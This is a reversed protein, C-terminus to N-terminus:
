ECICGTFFRLFHYFNLLKKEIILFHFICVGVVELEDLHAPLHKLVIQNIFDKWLMGNIEEFNLDGTITTTENLEAQLLDDHSFREVNEVELPQSLVVTGNLTLTGNEVYVFDDTSIDNIYNVYLEDVDVSELHLNQIRQGSERKNRNLEELLKLDTETENLLQLFENVKEPTILENGLFIGKTPVLSDLELMQTYIVDINQDKITIEDVPEKPFNQIFEQANKLVEDRTGLLIMVESLLELLHENMTSVAPLLSTKLYFLGSPAEHRPVLVTITRNRQFTTAGIIGLDRDQDLICGIGFESVHDNVYCPVSLAPYFAHGSWILAEVFSHTHSGYDMRHQVFLILDDRYTRAPVPLFFEVYGWSKSLITQDIFNGRHYRLIKPENGGISLYSYGGMEFSSLIEAHQSQIKTHYQFRSQVYKYIVAHDSQPFCMFTDHGAQVLAMNKAKAKLTISERLFFAQQNMDFRYLSAASGDHLDSIILLTDSNDIVFHHIYKAVHITPWMWMFEMKNMAENVRYFVIEHQISVIVIGDITRRTQNWYTFTVFFTPASLLKVESELTYTGNKEQVLILSSNTLGILAHSERNNRQLTRWGLVNEGINFSMDETISTLNLEERVQDMGDMHPADMNNAYSEVTNSMIGQNMAQIAMKAMMKEVTEDESDVLDNLRDNDDLQNVDHISPDFVDSGSSPKSDPVYSFDSRASGVTPENKRAKGRGILNDWFDAFFSEFTPPAVQPPPPPPAPIYYVPAETRREVVSKQNMNRVDSSSHVYINHKVAYNIENRLDSTERLQQASIRNHAFKEHKNTDKDMLYDPLVVPKAESIQKKNPKATTSTPIDINKKFLSPILPAITTKTTTARKGSTTTKPAITTSKTITGFLPSIGKSLSSGLTSQIDLLSPIKSKTKLLASNRISGLISSDLRSNVSQSIKDLSEKLKNDLSEKLKDTSLRKMRDVGDVHIEDENNSNVDYGDVSAVEHAQQFSM